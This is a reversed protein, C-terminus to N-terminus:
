SHVDVDGDLLRSAPEEGRDIRAVVECILQRTAM